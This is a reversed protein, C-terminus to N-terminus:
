ARMRWAGLITESVALRYGRSIAAEFVSRADYGPSITVWVKDPHRTWGDVMKDFAEVDIAEVVIENARELAERMKSALSPGEFADHGMVLTLWARRDLKISSRGSAVVQFRLGLAQIALSLPALDLCEGDRALVHRAPAHRGRIEDCVDTVSMSRSEENGFTISTTPTGAWAGTWQVGTSIRAIRLLELRM